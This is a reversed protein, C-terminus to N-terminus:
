GDVLTVEAVPLADIREAALYRDVEFVNGRPDVLRHSHDLALNEGLIVRFRRESTAPSATQDVETEDPQIRARVTPRITEWGTVEPGSGLDELVAAQITVLHSLRYAIELCRAQCRYRTGLRLRKVELLRWCCAEGDVIEDGVVPAAEGEPLEFEWTLDGAVVDGASPEAETHKAFSRLAAPLELESWGGARRLTVGEQGDVVESFDGATTFELSM